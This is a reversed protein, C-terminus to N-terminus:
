HNKWVIMGISKQYQDTSGSSTSRNM